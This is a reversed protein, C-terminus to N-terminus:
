FGNLKIQNLQASNFQQNKDIFLGGQTRAIKKENSKLIARRLIGYKCEFYCKEM